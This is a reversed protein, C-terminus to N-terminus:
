GARAAVTATLEDAYPQVLAGSELVRRALDLDGMGARFTTVLDIDHGPEGAVAIADGPRITGPEIVACYAGTRGRATFRKVWGRVGMHAAFTACPERPVRVELEVGDGIRLRTGLRLADLDIGETTVNEGFSGPPLDRELEGSWHDLEEIAYLYVAQSSGGHHKRDGIYDGTVGSGGTGSMARPGPDSVELAPVPHKDIGTPRAPHATSSTPGGVNVSVVRASVAGM